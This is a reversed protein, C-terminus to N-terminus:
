TRFKPHLDVKVAGFHHRSVMKTGPRPLGAQKKTASL